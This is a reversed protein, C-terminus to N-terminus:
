RGDPRQGNSILRQAVPRAAMGPRWPPRRARVVVFPWGAPSTVLFFGFELVLLAAATILAFWLPRSAALARLTLAAGTGAVLLVLWATGCLYKQVGRLPPMSFLRRLTEQFRAMQGM